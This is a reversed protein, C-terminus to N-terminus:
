AISMSYYVSLLAQLADLVLSRRELLLSELMIPLKIWAHGGVVASVFAIATVADVGFDDM